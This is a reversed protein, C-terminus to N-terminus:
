ESVPEQWIDHINECVVCGGGFGTAEVKAIEYTEKDLVRPNDDNSLVVRATCTMGELLLAAQRCADHFTEATIQRPASMVRKGNFYRTFTAAYYKM